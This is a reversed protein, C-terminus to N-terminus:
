GPRAVSPQVALGTVQEKPSALVISTQVRVVGPRTKIKDEILRHLHPLDHAWIKLLYPFEGSVHHCAQIEPMALVTKLFRGESKPGEVIVRVFASISYGATRPNILAVHARIDGRARLRRLRDNVGSISLGVRRALEALSRSCDEQLLNLLQADTSDM